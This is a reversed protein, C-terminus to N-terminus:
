GVSFSVRREANVTTGDEASLEFVRITYDGAPLTGLGFEYTGRGPAGVSATAHGEKVVASGKLLQWSVTAEFVTAEGKVVVPKGGPLVADRGPSTVWIPALDEYSESSPPRNYQQTAPFLGFLKASGDAVRFTVPITGKGVAAQATWVLSQVAVRAVDRDDIGTSGPGSLTVTILQPTVAVREVTTGSWPQLYGDTNSFRQADMALALAAEAKRADTAGAPLAAPLFERFLRFVPRDGSVPGVFYAPLAVERSAPATTSSPTPPESTPSPQTTPATATGTPASSAPPSPRETTVAAPGRDADDPQSAGWVVGAIAAVAAAAALPAFWRRRGPHEDDGAVHRSAALIDDLRDSPRVQQAEHHLARRLRHEVHHLDGSQPDHRDSTSM